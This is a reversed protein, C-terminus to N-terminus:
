PGEIVEVPTGATLKQQGRVVLLERGSLGEVVEVQNGSWIGLKVPIRKAEDGNAAFVFYEDLRRLVADSPIVVVDAKRQLLIEAIAYMGPKLLYGNRDDEPNKVRLEVKVTRTAPDVTPYVGHVDAPFVKEPYTDVTVRVPTQGPVVQPIHPGPLDVLVKLVDMTVISVIPTAPGVMDGVEVHKTCVVGDFPAQVFAEELRVRALALAAAAQALKGKEEDRDALAREYAAVADDKEKTSTAGREFLGIQREMERQTDKVDVEASALAAQAAHVSAQAQDVCAKLDRHDLVAVVADAAVPTGVDVLTGDDLALRELRAQLKPMLDVERLAEIEGTLTVTREITGRAVQQVRVKVTKDVTVAEAPDSRGQLVRFGAYGIAAVVLLAAVIKVLRIVGYEESCRDL